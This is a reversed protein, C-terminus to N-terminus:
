FSALFDTRKYDIGGFRISNELLEQHYHKYSQFVGIDLPQLIHTSHAPLLFVSIKVEPNYCYDVFEKTLHSRHGDMVLMRWAGNAPRTQLDFHKLWEFSLLDNTYGSESVAMRIGDNLGKPFHKEKMVQGPMIIMPDTTKGEASISEMSTVLERNDPDSIYIQKGRRTFVIQGALCGIRFGTEDFNHLNCPKIELQRYRRGFKSFHTEIDSLKQAAKRQASL